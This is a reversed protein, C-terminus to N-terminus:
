KFSFLFRAVVFAYVCVCVYLLLLLCFCRTRNLDQSVCRRLVFNSCMVIFCNSAYFICRPKFEHVVAATATAAIAVCMWKVLSLSFGMADAAGVIVAM